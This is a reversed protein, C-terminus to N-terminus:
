KNEIIYDKFIDPIQIDADNLIIIFYGPNPLKLYDFIDADIEDKYYFKLKKNAPLSDFLTEPFYYVSEFWLHTLNDLELLFPPFDDFIDAIGLILLSKDKFNWFKEKIEDSLPNFVIKNPKFYDTFIPEIEYRSSQFDISIRRLNPAKTAIIELNDYKNDNFDLSTLNPLNKNNYQFFVRSSRIELHKIKEIDHVIFNKENRRAWRLFEDDNVFIQAQNIITDDWIESSPPKINDFDLKLNSICSIKGISAPLEYLSKSYLWLYNLNRLNSFEINEIECNINFIIIKRLNIMREISQPLTCYSSCQFEIRLKANDSGFIETIPDLKDSTLLLQKFQILDGINKPIEVLKPLKIRLHTLKDLKSINQPLKCGHEVYFKFIGKEISQFFENPSLNVIQHTILVKTINPSFFMWDKMTELRPNSIYLYELSNFDSELDFIQDNHYEIQCFYFNGINNDDWFAQTKYFDRTIFNKYLFFFKRFKGNIIVKEPMSEQSILYFNHIHDPLLLDEINCNKNLEIILQSNEPDKYEELDIDNLYIKSLSVLVCHINNIELLIPPFVSLKPCQIIIQKLKKCNKLSDPLKLKDYNYIQLSELSKLQTISEDIILEQDRYPKLILKKISTNPMFKVSKGQIELTELNESSWFLDKFEDYEANRLTLSILYSDKFNQKLKEFHPKKLFNLYEIIAADKLVIESNEGLGDDIITCNNLVSKITYEENKLRNNQINIFKLNKLNNWWEDFFQINNFKVSIRNLNRMNQMEKPFQTIKNHDLVLEELFRLKGISEPINIIQNNAISLKKLEILNTVGDPFYSLKDSLNNLYLETVRGKDNLKYGRDLSEYPVKTFNQIKFGSLEKEISQLAYVDSKCFINEHFKETLETIYREIFDQYEEPFFFENQLNKQRKKIIGSSFIIDWHIQYDKIFDSLDQELIPSYPDGIMCILDQFINEVAEIIGMRHLITNYKKPDAFIQFWNDDQPNFDQYALNPNHSSILKVIFPKKLLTKIKSDQIKNYDINYRATIEQLFTPDDIDSLIYSAGTPVTIDEFSNFQQNQFIYNRYSRAKSSVIPTHIWDVLRSTLLIIINNPNRKVLKFIANFIEERENILIEDFGDFILLINKGYEQPITRDFFKKLPNEDFLNGFYNEFKTEFPEGLNFIFTPIKDNYKYGIYSANWTKGLGMHGLMLFIREKNVKNQLNEFFREFQEELKLIPVFREEDYPEDYRSSIEEIELQKQCYFKLDEDSYEFIKTQNEYKSDSLPKKMTDLFGIINQNFSEFFSKQQNIIDQLQSHNKKDEEKLEELFGQYVEKFSEPDQEQKKQIYELSKELKTLTKEIEISKKNNISKNKSKIHNIIETTILKSSITSTEKSLKQSIQKEDIEININKSLFQSIFSVSASIPTAAPIFIPGIMLAWKLTTKLGKAAKNKFNKWKQSNDKEVSNSNKQEKKPM